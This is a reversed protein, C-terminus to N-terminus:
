PKRTLLEDIEKQTKQELPRSVSEHMIQSGVIGSGISLLPVTIMALRPNSKIIAGTIGKGLWGGVFAGGEFGAWDSGIGALRGVGSGTSVMFQNRVDGAASLLALSGLAQGGRSLYNFYRSSSFATEATAATASARVVNGAPAEVPLRSIEAAIAKEAQPNLAGNKILEGYNTKMYESAAANAQQVSLVRTGEYPWASKVVAGLQEHKLAAELPYNSLGTTQPALFARFEGQQRINGAVQATVARLEEQVMERGHLMQAETSLQHLAARAAPTAEYARYGAAYKGHALEHIYKTAADKDAGDSIGVVTNMFSGLANHAIKGSQSDNYGGQVLLKALRMLPNKTHNAIFEDAPSMAGFSWGKASLAQMRNLAAEGIPGSQAMVKTIQSMNPLLRGQVGYYATRAMMANLGPADLNLSSEQARQKRESLLRGAEENLPAAHESAPKETGSDGKKAGPLVEGGDRNTGM